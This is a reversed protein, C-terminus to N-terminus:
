IQNFKTLDPAIRNFPTEHSSKPPSPNAGAIRTLILMIIMITM